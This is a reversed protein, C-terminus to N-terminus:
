FEFGAGCRQIESRVNKFKLFALARETKLFFNFFVLIGFSHLKQVGVRENKM